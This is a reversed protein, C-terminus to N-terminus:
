NWLAPRHEAVVPRLVPQARLGTRKLLLAWGPAPASLTICAYPACEWTYYWKLGARSFVQLENPINPGFLGIGRLTKSPLAAGVYDQLATANLAGVSAAPAPAASAPAWPESVYASLADLLEVVPVDQPDQDSATRGATPRVGALLALVGVLAALAGM